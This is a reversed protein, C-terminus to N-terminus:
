DGNKSGASGTKGNSTNSNGPGDEEHGRKKGKGKDKGKKKGKSKREDKTENGQAADAPLDPPSTDATDNSTSVDADGPDGAGQDSEHASSSTDPATSAVDGDTQQKESHDTDANPKPETAKQGTDAKTGGSSESGTGDGAPAAKSTKEPPPNDGSPPKKEPPADSAQGKAEVVAVAAPESEEPREKAASRGKGTGTERQSAEASEPEPDTPAATDDTASLALQAAPTVDAKGTTVDWPKAVAMTAAVTTAASVIAVKAFLPTAIAAAMGAIGPAGVGAAATSAATTAAAGTGASVGAGGATATAGGAPAATGAGGSVAAAATSTVAGASAATGVPFGVVAHAVSERLAFPAILAVPALRLPRLHGQLARRARVLLSEVASETTNLAKAIEDYRLGLMERLVFAERQSEPLEALAQSLSAGQAIQDTVDQNGDSPMRELMYAPAAVTNQRADRRIRDRCENRAIAALWAGAQEPQRGSLLSRHANVFTQQAADEADYANRLYIRCVGLVMRGHEDFLHGLLAGAAHADAKPAPPIVTSLIWVRETTRRPERVTVRAQDTLTVRLPPQRM